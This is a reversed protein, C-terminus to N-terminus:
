QAHQAADDTFVDREVHLERGIQRGNKGIWAADILDNHVQRQVSAVGHRVAAFHNDRSKLDFDVFRFARTIGFCLESCVDAQFYFVSAISHICRGRRADKFREKRGLTRPLAGAHAEGGHIAHKLLM